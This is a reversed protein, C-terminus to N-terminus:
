TGRIEGIIEAIIRGIKGIIESIKGITERKKGQSRGMTNGQTERNLGKHNGEKTGPCKEIIDAPCWRSYKYIYLYLYLYLYLYIRHYVPPFITSFHPAIQMIYRYIYM